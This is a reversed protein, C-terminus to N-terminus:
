RQAHIGSAFERLRADSLASAMGNEQHCHKCAFDLSIGPPSVRSGNEKVTQADAQTDIRFLHTRM